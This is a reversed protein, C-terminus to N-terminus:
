LLKKNTEWRCEWSTNAEIQTKIKKKWRKWVVDVM